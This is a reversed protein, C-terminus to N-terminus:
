PRGPWKSAGRGRYASQHLWARWFRTTDDVLQQLEAPPIRRPRGGMSEMVVGATEGERLTRSVRIDDGLREVELGQDALSVNRDGVPSLTLEM